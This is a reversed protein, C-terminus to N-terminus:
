CEARRPTSLSCAQQPSHTLNSPSSYSLLSHSRAFCSLVPCFSISRALPAPWGLASPRVWCAPSPIAGGAERSAQEVSWRSSSGRIPNRGPPYAPHPDMGAIYRQHAVPHTALSPEFVFFCTLGNVGPFLCQASSSALRGNRTM